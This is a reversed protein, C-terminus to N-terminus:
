RIVVEDSFIWCESGAGIHWPPCISKNKGIVKIYRAQTPKFIMRFDHTQPTWDDEPVPTKIEGLKRFKKGDYSVFYAVSEPMFIWSDVDQLFGTTLESITQPKGLDIVAELDVGKYGQWAGTRFNNEGRRFDILAIDGGANYQNAYPHSISISRGEPIKEFWANIDFSDDKGPSITRARLPTSADIKFSTSYNALSSATSDISFLIQASEDACDLEVEQSNFFVRKGQKVFPVPTILHESIESVPLEGELSGWNKNPKDGMVFRVYGGNEIQEQTLYSKALLKGNLSAAQIFVNETSQNEAEIVLEKGNELHITIQDFLPSGIVYINSAPTVPYFGLASTVYWASMQGCDENGCLGDPASTYLENMIRRVKEQTKWPQGCYNYLYAMHHSPENGHAYQGILGTIDAQHRGSTTEKATFLKDLRYSLSDHGGLMAMLGSVDQPVYFSYQWANAETYNFNVEWPDFPNFWTENRKARMFKTEPDFVNKYYQARRIFQEYIEQNGMEKAMTAICWDDYAYELTKSVSEPEKDSPIYGKEKYWKLGFQDEMASAVCAELALEQDYDRIGKMWGDAIVPVAHYGIMCNTENAALEWVPLLGGQQYQVLMTRIFDNTRKRDIISLLPHATRYTDWLSFVTYYDFGDTKHIENDHGRYSGDVDSYLNPNLMAHYLATYFVTKRDEDAAEGSVEIKGLNENWLNNTLTRVKDFRWGPIEEERNKKANEASVASIGVKVLVEEGKDTSFSLWAKIDKGQVRKVIMKDEGDVRIGYRKFPKSFKANFYVYQNNSWGNTRRLGQIETDSMIEIWLDLIEDTTVGETLDVIINSQESEPFTYRHFGTRPTTTLEANINYDLLNVQYYGAKATEKDHSFRSRYGSEPNEETGPDLLVEGTTPMFRIDGYDGVGTGSLHTHSFGMITNDSFHYGSCGDWSDKRTDPSLQVMGFPTAAGPYVHGHADTGIIPDVYKSFEDNVRTCSLSLLLIVALLGFITHKNMM